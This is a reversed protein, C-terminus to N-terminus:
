TTTSFPLTEAIPLPVGALLRGAISAFPAQTVGPMKAVRVLRPRHSTPATLSDFSVRAPPAGNLAASSTAGTILGEECCMRTCRAEPMVRAAVTVSGELEIKPPCPATISRPASGSATVCARAKWTTASPSYPPRIAPPLRTAM